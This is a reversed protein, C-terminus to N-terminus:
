GRIPRAACRASWIPRARRSRRANARCVPRGSRGAAEAGRGRRASLQRPHRQPPRRADANPKDQPPTRDAQIHIASSDCDPMRAPGFFDVKPGISRYIMAFHWISNSQLHRCPLDIPGSRGSCGPLAQRAVPAQRHRFERALDAQRLCRHLCAHASQLLVAEDAAIRGDDVALAHAFAMDGEHLHLQGVRARRRQVGEVARHLADGSISCHWM